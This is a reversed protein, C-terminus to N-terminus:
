AVVDLKKAPKIEEDACIAESIDPAALPIVPDSKLECVNKLLEVWIAASIEPDQCPCFKIEAECVNKDVPCLFPSEAIVPNKVNLLNM